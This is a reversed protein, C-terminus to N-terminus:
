PAYVFRSCRALAACLVLAPTSRDVPKTLSFTTANPLPSSGCLSLQQVAALAYLKIGEPELYPKITCYIQSHPKTCHKRPGTAHPKVKRHMPIALHLGGTGVANCERM